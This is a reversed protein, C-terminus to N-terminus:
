PVPSRIEPPVIVASPHNARKIMAAVDRYIAVLIAFGDPISGLGCTSAIALIASETFAPAGGAALKVMGDESCQAFDLAAQASAKTTNEWSAPDKVQACGLSPGLTFLAVVIVFLVSFALIGLERLRARRAIREGSRRLEIPTFRSFQVLPSLRM